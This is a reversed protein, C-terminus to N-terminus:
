QTPPGGSDYGKVQVYDTHRYIPQQEPYKAQLDLDLSIEIQVSNARINNPMSRLSGCAFTLIALFLPVFDFYKRSSCGAIKPLPVKWFSPDWERVGSIGYDKVVTLVVGSEHVGGFRAERWSSCCLQQNTNKMPSFIVARKRLLCLCPQKSQHLSTKRDRLVVQLIRTEPPLGM